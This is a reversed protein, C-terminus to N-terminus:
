IKDKIEYEVKYIFLNIDYILDIYVTLNFYLDKIECFISKIEHANKESIFLYDVYKKIKQMIDDIEHKKNECLESYKKFEKKLISYLMEDKDKKDQLSKAFFDAGIISANYDYIKENLNTESILDRIYKINENM